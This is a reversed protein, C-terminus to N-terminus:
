SPLRNLDQENGVSWRVLLAREALKVSEKEVPGVWAATQMVTPESARGRREWADVAVVQAEAIAVAAAAVHVAQCAAQLRRMAEQLERNSRRLRPQGNRRARSRAAARLKDLADVSPDV